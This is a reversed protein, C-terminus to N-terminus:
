GSENVWIFYIYTFFLLLIVCRNFALQKTIYCFLVLIFWKLVKKLRSHSRYGRCTLQFVFQFRKKKPPPSFMLSFYLLQMLTWVRFSIGQQLVKKIKLLVWDKQTPTWWCPVDQSPPIEGSNKKWKETVQFLCCTTKHLMWWGPLHKLNIFCIETDFLQSFTSNETSVSMQPIRSHVLNENAM